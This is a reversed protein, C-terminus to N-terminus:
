RLISTVDKFEDEFNIWGVNQFLTGVLLMGVLAPLHVLSVLWGGFNAVICLAALGFLPGGPAATEGAIAFTIGWILLGILLLAFLRAFQRYSPCFPHPFTEDWGPPSWSPVSDKHRCNLCFMYWWSREDEAESM